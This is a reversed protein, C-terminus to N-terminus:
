VCFEDHHKPEFCTSTKLETCVDQKNISNLYKYQVSNIKSNISSVPSTCLSYFGKISKNPVVQEKPTNLM